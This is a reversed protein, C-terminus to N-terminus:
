FDVPVLSGIIDPISTTVVDSAPGIKNFKQLTREHVSGLDRVTPAEYQKRM